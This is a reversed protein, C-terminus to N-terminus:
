LGDSYAFVESPYQIDILFLGKAPVSMGAKCRNKSEIIREFDDIGIRGVGVDVMTGVIARVMNRLFRDAKITFVVSTGEKKWFSEYIHCINTKVDTHLKSFSTFDSHNMLITCANNMAELDIDRSYYWSYDYMFPDKRQSIFYQYTRSIASFRAHVDNSVKAISSVVIDNPLLGNLRDVVSKDNELFSIDCDFHACFHRAHVGSDTRGAGVVAIERNLVVSLAGELTQQVSSANPQFQWGHYATGKYSIIIFYRTQM